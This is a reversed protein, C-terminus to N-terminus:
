LIVDLHLEILWYSMKVPLDECDLMCVYCPQLIFFELVFVGLQDWINTAPCVVCHVRVVGCGLQFCSYSSFIQGLM